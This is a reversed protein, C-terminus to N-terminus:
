RNRPAYLEADAAARLATRQISNNSMMAIMSVTLQEAYDGIACMLLQWPQPLYSWRWVNVRKELCTMSGSHQRRLGLLVWFLLSM